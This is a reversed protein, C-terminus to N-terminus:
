KLKKVKGTAYRVQNLTIGYPEYDDINPIYFSIDKSSMEPIVIEVIQNRMTKIRPDKSLFNRGISKWSYIIEFEKNTFNSFSNSTVTVEVYPRFQNDFRLRSNSISQGLMPSPIFVLILGIVKVINM